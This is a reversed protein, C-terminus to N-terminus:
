YSLAYSASFQRVMDDQRLYKAGCRAYGRRVRMRYLKDLTYIVFFSDRATIRNEVNVAVLKLM